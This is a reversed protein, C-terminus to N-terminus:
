ADRPSPSTYLLCAASLGVSVNGASPHGTWSCDEWDLLDAMTGNALAANSLGVKGGDGFITAQLPASGGMAKAVAIIEQARQCKHASIAVGLTHLSLIKAREIVEPPIQEYRLGCLYDSLIQTYKKM